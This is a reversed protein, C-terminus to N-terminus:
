RWGDLLEALEADTLRPRHQGTYSDRRQRIWLASPIAIV